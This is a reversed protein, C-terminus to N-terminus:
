KYTKFQIQLESASQRDFAPKALSRKIDIM